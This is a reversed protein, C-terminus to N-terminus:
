SVLEYGIQFSNVDAISWSTAQVPNQEWIQDWYQYDTNINVNSGVYTSGNTTIVPRITRDGANNKRTELLTYIGFIYASNVAMDTMHFRDRNGPSSTETYDQDSNPLTEDVMQYNAGVTSVAWQVTGDSNPFLAEIRIDGLFTNNYSGTNDLVYFDDLTFTHPNGLIQAASVGGFIVRNAADSGALLTNGAFTFETRGNVRVEIYGSTTDITNQFELYYWCGQHLPCTTRGLFDDIVQEGRWIGITGDSELVYSVKATNINVLQWIQEYSLDGYEGVKFAFGVFLTKRAFPLTKSLQPVDDNPGKMHIGATGNRGITAGISAVTSGPGFTKSTWKDDLSNYEYHDFSDIFVLAM